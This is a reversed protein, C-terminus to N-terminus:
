CQRTASVRRLSECVFLDSIPVLVCMYLTNYLLIFLSFFLFSSLFVYRNPKHDMTMMDGEKIIRHESPLDQKAFTTTDSSEGLKKGMLQNQWDQVKNDSDKGTSTIGPVVLPMKINKKVSLPNTNPIRKRPNRHLVRTKPPANSSVQVIIICIFL